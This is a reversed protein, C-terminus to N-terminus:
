SSTTSRCRVAAACDSLDDLHLCPRPCTRTPPRPARAPSRSALLLSAVVTRAFGARRRSMRLSSDRHRPRCRSRRRDLLRRAPRIGEPRPATPSRCVCRARDMYASFVIVGGFKRAYSLTRESYFSSRDASYSDWVVYQVELRAVVLDPNPVPRLGPQAEDPRRQREDRRQRPRRLLPPHQRAVSRRHPVSRQDADVSGVAAFERTGAFSQVEVDFDAM